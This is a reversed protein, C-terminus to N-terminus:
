YKENIKKKFFNIVKKQEKLIIGIDLYKIRKKFKSPIKIYDKETTVIEANLKKAQKMIYIFDSENYNNHDPYIIKKIIRFKNKKLFEFFSYPNGIGSFILYKKKLSLNKINKIYYQFNFIEIKPNNKKITQIISKSPKKMNKLFVADYKSLNDIKERLPGSPILMGNGIWNLTDFCVIKLNYDLYKEQLGDDFIIIKKKRKIADKIILLRTKKTILETKKRILYIEDLQNKYFKKGIIVSKKNKSLLEYLKLVLPTKGTGGVYINGVCISFINKPKYKTKSNIIFNNIKTFYTLPSLILSIINKKKDWFLPKKINIM